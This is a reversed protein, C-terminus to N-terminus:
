SRCRLALRMSGPLATAQAFSLLTTDRCIEESTMVLEIIPRFDLPCSTDQTEKHFICLMAPSPEPIQHLQDPVCLHRGVLQSLLLLSLLLSCCLIGLPSLKRGFPLHSERGDNLCKM